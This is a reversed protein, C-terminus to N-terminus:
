WGTQFGLPSIGTGNKPGAVGGKRGCFMVFVGTSKGSQPPVGTIM